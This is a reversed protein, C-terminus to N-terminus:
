PIHEVALRTLVQAVTMVQGYSQLAALSAKHVHEAPISTGGYTLARHLRGCRGAVPLGPRRRRARYRGRLLLATKM